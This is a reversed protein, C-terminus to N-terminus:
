LASTGYQTLFAQIPKQLVPKVIRLAEEAAVVIRDRSRMEEWENLIQTVQLPFVQVHCTGGWKKYHYECTMERSIQGIVGAEELAEKAASEQASLDREIIGKPVIWLKSSNATILVIKLEDQELLYPIAASQRYLWAPKKAM